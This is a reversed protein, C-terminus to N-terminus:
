TELINMMHFMSLVVYKSSIHYLFDYITLILNIFMQELILYKSSLYLFSYKEQKIPIYSIPVVYIKSLINFEKTNQNM